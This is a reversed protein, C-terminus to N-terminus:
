FWLNRKQSILPKYVQHANLKLLPLCVGDEIADSILSSILFATVATGRQLAEM